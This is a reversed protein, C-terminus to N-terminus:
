DEQAHAAERGYLDTVRCGLARAIRPLMNVGPPLEGTERAAVTHEMVGLARALDERSMGALERIPRLGLPTRKAAPCIGCPRDQCSPLRSYLCESCSNKILM